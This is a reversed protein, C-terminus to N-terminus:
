NISSGTPPGPASVKQQEKVPLMSYLPVVHLSERSEEGERDDSGEDDEDASGPDDDVASAKIRDLDFEKV